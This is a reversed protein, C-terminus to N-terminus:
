TSHQHYNKAKAALTRTELLNVSGPSTVMDSSTKTLGQKQSDIKM